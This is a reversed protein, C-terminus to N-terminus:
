LRDPGVLQIAPNGEALSRLALLYRAERFLPRAPNLVARIVWADFDEPGAPTVRCTRPVPQPASRGADGVRHAGHVHRRAPGHGCATAPASM